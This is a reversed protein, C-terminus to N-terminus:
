PAACMWLIARVPDRSRSKPRARGARNDTACGSSWRHGVLILLPGKLMNAFRSVRLHSLYEANLKSKGVQRRYGGDYNGNYANQYDRDM